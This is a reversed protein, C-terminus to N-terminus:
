EWNGVLVFSGWYYPAHYKNNPHNLLSLQAKRLSEAKGSKKTILNQYFDTMLIPTAIDDSKWLSAITSKARSQIAVGALGLIARSDGQASYCATLV